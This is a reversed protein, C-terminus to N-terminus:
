EKTSDMGSEDSIDAAVLDVTPYQKKTSNGNKGEIAREVM